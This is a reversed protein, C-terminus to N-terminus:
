RLSYIRKGNSIISGDSCLTADKLSIKVNDSNVFYKQNKHFELKYNSFIQKWPVRKDIKIFYNHLLDDRKIDIDLSTFEKPSAVLNLGVGCILKDDILNTIMGGIKLDGIYFDNPWKLWVSSGYESLLEKLIYSFYISASELKLDTPLDKLYLSFSLFLNGDLGFWINDRSGIGATQIDSVVAVPPKLKKDKLEKKLYIQTSNLEKHYYIKM